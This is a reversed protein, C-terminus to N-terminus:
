LKDNETEGPETAPEGAQPTLRATELGETQKLSDDTDSIDSYYYFCYCYIYLDINNRYKGM